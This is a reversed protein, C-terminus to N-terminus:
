SEDEDSSQPMEEDSDDEEDSAQDWDKMKAGMMFDDRLVGWSPKSPESDTAISTEKTKKSKKDEMPNANVNATNKLMDLFDGKNVNKMVKDRKNISSGAEKLKDDISKQQKKVANFLQVVGKTAIKQLKREKDKELVHPKVHSLEEWRKRKLQKEKEKQFSTLNDEPQKDAEEDGDEVKVKKVDAPEAELEAQRKKWKIERDTKAKALIASKKEPAKKNLIKAMVNALGSTSEDGDNENDSEDTASSLDEKEDDGSISQETEDSHEEDSAENESDSSEAKEASKNHDEQEDVTSNTSSEAHSATREEDSADDDTTDSASDFNESIQVRTKTAM